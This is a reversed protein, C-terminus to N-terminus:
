SQTRLNPHHFCQTRFLKRPHNGYGGMSRHMCTKNDWLVLDGKTWKHYYVYPERDLHALVRGIIDRSEEKTKGKITVNGNGPYLSEIGSEDHNFIISHLAVPFREDDEKLSSFDPIKRADVEIQLGELEKRLEPDMQQLALVTDAFGTDGGEEPVIVSYLFNM